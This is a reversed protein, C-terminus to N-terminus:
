IVAAVILLWFHNNYYCVDEEQDTRVHQVKLVFAVKWFWM